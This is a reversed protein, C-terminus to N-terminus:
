RLLIASPARVVVGRRGKLAVSLKRPQGRRPPGPSVYTLFYADRTDDRVQQFLKPLDQPRPYKIFAGGTERALRDLPAGRDIMQVSGYDAKTSFAPQAGTYVLVPYVPVGIEHAYEIVGEETTRSGNDAGDTFVLLARKGRVGRLQDLSFVIADWLATAGAAHMDFLSNSVKEFDSTLPQFLSPTEAFSVVFTKDEAAMSHRLFETAYEMVSVMAGRMSGSADVAIGVTIPENPDNHVAVSVPVGDEKVVFDNATLGEVGHGARDHVIAYLEVADVRVEAASGEANIVKADEATAGADDHGVARIYGFAHPSPLALTTQFPPSTLTALKEDNWYVDVSRLGDGEPLHPQVEVVTSSAVSGERPAVIEVSFAETRDNISASDQGLIANKTDFAVAKVVHARPVAGLAIDATFPPRARV